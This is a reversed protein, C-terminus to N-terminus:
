SQILLLDVMKSTMKYEIRGAYFASRIHIQVLLRNMRNLKEKHKNLARYQHYTLLLRAYRTDLIELRVDNTQM